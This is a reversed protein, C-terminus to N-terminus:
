KERYGVIATVTKTPLIFYNEGLVAACKKGAGLLDFIYKQMSINLDGYGPSYRTAFTVGDGGYQKRIDQELLDCYVEVLMAGLGQHIMPLAQNKLRDRQILRDCGPGITAAFLFVGDCDKIHKYLTDSCIITFGADIMYHKRKCSNEDEKFSLPFYAYIANPRCVELEAKLAKDIQAKLDDDPGSKGIQMYRYSQPMDIELETPAARHYLITGSKPLQM